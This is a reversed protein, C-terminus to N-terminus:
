LPKLCHVTLYLSPATPFKEFFKCYIEGNKKMPETYVCRCIFEKFVQVLLKIYVM